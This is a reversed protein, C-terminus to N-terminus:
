QKDIKYITTQEIEYEQNIEGQCGEGESSGLNKEQM